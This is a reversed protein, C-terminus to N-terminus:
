EVLESRLACFETPIPDTEAVSLIWRHYRDRNGPNSLAVFHLTGSEDENRGQSLPRSLLTPKVNHEVPRPFRLPARCPHLEVLSVWTPRPFSGSPELRTSPGEKELDNKQGRFRLFGM